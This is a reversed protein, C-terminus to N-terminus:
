VFKELPSLNIDLFYKGLDDVHTLSLPLSNETVKIEIRDGSFYYPLKLSGYIFFSNIKDLSHLKKSKSWLVQYYPCLNKNTFLKDQGPLDVVEM